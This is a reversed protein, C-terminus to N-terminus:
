ATPLQAVTLAENLSGVRHVSIGQVKEPASMPVIARAFGLRAAEARRRVGSKGEPVRRRALFKKGGDLGHQAHEVLCAVTVVLQARTELPDDILQADVLNTPAHQLDAM